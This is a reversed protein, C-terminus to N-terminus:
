YMLYEHGDPLSPTDNQGRAAMASFWYEFLITYQLQVLACVSFDKFYYRHLSWNPVLYGVITKSCDIIPVETFAKSRKSFIFVVLTTIAHALSTGKSVIGRILIAGHTYLYVFGMQFESKKESNKVSTTMIM